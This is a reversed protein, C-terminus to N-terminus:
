ELLLLTAALEVTGVAVADVKGPDPDAVGDPDLLTGSGVEVLTSIRPVAVSKQLATRSNM